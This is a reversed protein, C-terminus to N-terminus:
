RPRGGLVSFQVDFALGKSRVTDSSKFMEWLDDSINMWIMWKKMRGNSCCADNVEIWGTDKWRVTIRSLYLV